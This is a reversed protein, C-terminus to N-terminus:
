GSRGLAPLDKSHSVNEAAVLLRGRYPKQDFAVADAADFPNRADVAVRHHPKANAKTISAALEKILFHAAEGQPVNLAIFDMREDALALLM